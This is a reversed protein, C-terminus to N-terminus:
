PELNMRQRLDAITEVQIAADFWRELTAMDNTGEIALRISEPVPNELHQVVKLLNARMTRLEGREEGVREWGKIYTSERAMWGETARIWDAQYRTLEAFVIAAEKLEVRRSEFAECEVVLKWREIFDRTGGDQMLALFPLITLGVEGNEIRTLTVGADQSAVDVIFPALRTGFPGWAWELRAPNQTGTLNLVLSGVAPGDPHCAPNVEKALLLEYQGSRYVIGREPEDQIEVVFWTQRTPHDEDRLLAVLDNTRDPEGPSVLRRTDDWAVFTLRPPPDCCGFAWAFFASGDMKALPRATQDFQGM